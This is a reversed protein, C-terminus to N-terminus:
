FSIALPSDVPDPQAEAGTLRSSGHMFPRTVRDWANERQQAALASPLKSAWILIVFM